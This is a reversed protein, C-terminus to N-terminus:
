PTSGKTDASRKLVNWTVADWANHVGVFLLTISAAGIAFLAPTAKADPLMAAVVFTVYAALPFFTHWLWDELVPKYNTQQHARRTVILVYAVGVLGTLGILFTANAVSRWPVSAICAVLFAGCLHVITPTAFAALGIETTQRARAESILSIVVFMLGTLAASSSGVIVYFNEWGALTTAVPGQM